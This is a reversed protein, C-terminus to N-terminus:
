GRGNYDNSSYVLLRFITEREKETMRCDLYMKFIKFCSFLAFVFVGPIRPAAHPADWTPTDPRLGPSEAELRVEEQHAGLPLVGCSGRPEKRGQPLGPRLEPEQSRGPGAVAAISM